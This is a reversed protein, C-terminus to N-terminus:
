DRLRPSPSARLRRAELARSVLFCLSELASSGRPLCHGQRSVGHRHRGRDIESARRPTGIAILTMNRARARADRPCRHHTAPESSGSRGRNAPPRRASATQPPQREHRAKASAPSRRQRGTRRTRGGGAGRVHRPPLPLTGAQRRGGCYGREAGAGDHARRIPAYEM